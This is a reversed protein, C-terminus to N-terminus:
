YAIEEVRTERREKKKEGAGKHMGRLSNLFRIEQPEPTTFTQRLRLQSCVEM